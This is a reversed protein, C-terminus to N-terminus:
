EVALSGAGVAGVEADERMTQTMADPQFPMLIRIENLPRQPLGLRLGSVNKAKLRPNIDGRGFLAFRQLPIGAIEATHTDSQLIAEDDCHILLPSQAPLPQGTRDMSPPLDSPDHLDKRHMAM